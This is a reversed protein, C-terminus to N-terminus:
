MDQIESTQHFYRHNQNYLLKENLEFGLMVCYLYCFIVFMAIIKVRFFELELWKEKGPM